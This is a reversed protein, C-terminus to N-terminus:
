NVGGRRRGCVNPAAATAVIALQRGGRRLVAYWCRVASTTLSHLYIAVEWTRSVTKDSGVLYRLEVRVRERRRTKMAGALMVVCHMKEAHTLKEKEGTGTAASLAVM